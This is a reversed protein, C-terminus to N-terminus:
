CRLLEESKLKFGVTFEPKIDELKEFWKRIGKLIKINEVGGDYKTAGNAYVTYIFVIRVLAMKTSNEKCVLPNNLLILIEGLIDPQINAYLVFKRENM